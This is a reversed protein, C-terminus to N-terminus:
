IFITQTSLARPLEPLLELCIHGSSSVWSPICSGSARPWGISYDETAGCAKIEETERDAGRYGARYRERM